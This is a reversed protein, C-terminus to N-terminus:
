AGPKGSDTPDAGETGEILDAAELPLRDLLADVRARAAALRSRLSDRELTLAQVQQELLTNTRKLEEHRVLLREVRDVLDNISSM